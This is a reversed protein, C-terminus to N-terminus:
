SSGVSHSENKLPDRGDARGDEGGLISDQACCRRICPNSVDAEWPPRTLTEPLGEEREGRSRLYFINELLLRPMDGTPRWVGIGDDGM